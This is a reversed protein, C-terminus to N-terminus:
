IHARLKAAVLQLALKCGEFAITNRVGRGQLAGEVVRAQVHSDLQLEILQLQICYV